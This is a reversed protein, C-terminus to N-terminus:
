AVVTLRDSFASKLDYELKDAGVRDAKNIVLLDAIELIGAKMAQIGRELSSWARAAGALTSERGVEPM